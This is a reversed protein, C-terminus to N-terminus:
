KRRVGFWRKFPRVLSRLVRPLVGTRLVAEQLNAGELDLRQALHNKRWQEIADKGALVVKVHDLNAM